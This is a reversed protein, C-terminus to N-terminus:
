TADTLYLLNKLNRYINNDLVQQGAKNVPVGQVAPRLLNVAFSYYLPIYAAERVLVREADIYLGARKERDQEGAAADVLTDFETSKWAFRRRAPPGYWIATYHNSPDPYDTFWVYLPLQYKGEFLNTIYVRGDEPSEITVNLGLNQALQQQLVEGVLKITPGVPRLTLTVEPWNTGGEYPTGVLKSRALEPDYTYAEPFEPYLEPNIAYPQDQSILSYAPEGLDYIVKLLTERDIAHQLAQRVGLQDFPPKNTEPSLFAVASQPTQILQRSLEPDEQLRPIESAPIGANTRWDLEGGEYPLLGANNPIISAIIKKLQPKPAIAFDENREFELVRNREWKVLKFPGNSVIKGEETWSEGHQEVSPRHAPLGSAYGVLLPFYERPGNLTIELTYDDVAKLGLQDAGGGAGSNWEQAGVIDYFIAAYSAATAPDLQRTFSYVFDQATVPDGNTWKGAQNIKFTYVTGDDSVTWSEAAYPLAEYDPSLQTLGAFLSAEGGNYLDKNFDHSAPDVNYAIRLVQQDDPLLNGGAVPAAPAATAAPAAPATTAAPAAPAATAAPAAPATTAAPAAPAATPSEAPPTAGCAALIASAGGLGLTTLFARRSIGAKQAGAAIREAFLRRQEENDLWQPTHDAM